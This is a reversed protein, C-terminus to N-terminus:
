HCPEGVFCPEEINCHPSARSSGILSEVAPRPNYLGTFRDLKKVLQRIGMCYAEVIEWTLVSPLGVDSHM